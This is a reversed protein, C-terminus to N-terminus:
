RFSPPRPESADKGSSKESKKRTPRPAARFRKGSHNTNTAIFHISVFIIIIINNNNDLFFYLFHFMNRSCFYIFSLGFIVIVVWFAIRTSLEM